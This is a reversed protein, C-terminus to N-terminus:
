GRESWGPGAGGGPLILREGERRLPLGRLGVISYVRSTSLFILTSHHRRAYELCNFAGVLNTNVLYGVGSLYGAHVSPEAACEIVVDAAPLAEFDANNRIDGHIFDIGAARLRPLSLESGRRHLNDFSTVQNGACAFMVALNSGVFGAGGTILIHM